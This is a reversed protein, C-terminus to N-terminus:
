ESNALERTGRCAPYSSCGWFQEGLRAGRKSQRVVMLANCRPYHPVNRSVPPLPPSPKVSDVDRSTIAPRRLDGKTPGHILRRFAAIATNEVTQKFAGLIAGAIVCLVLFPVVRFMLIHMFPALPDNADAVM